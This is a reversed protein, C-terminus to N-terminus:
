LTPVKIWHVTLVSSADMHAYSSLSGPYKRNEMTQAALWNEASEKEKVLVKFTPICGLGYALLVLHCLPLHIHLVDRKVSIDRICAFWQVLSLLASVLLFFSNLRSTNVDSRKCKPSESLLVNERPLNPHKRDYRKNYLNITTQKVKMVESILNSWYEQRSFRMSLPAQHAVTWPTAFLQVRSFRSNM